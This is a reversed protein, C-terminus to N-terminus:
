SMGARINDYVSKPYSLMNLSTDLGGLNGAVTRVISESGNKDGSAEWYVAGGLGKAKIYKAKLKATAINEYTVLEKKTADYSYVSIAQTSVRTRTNPQPLDRYLYIGNEVTGGGVGSFPKGLGATNAFSRGYLPMGLVIKSPSIGKAIYDTVAQDTNFPTAKPVATSKYVNAQLGSLTDWSGAYDYAMLHWADVYPDMGALNMMNYHAPGASTAITILFRYNLKNATSYADLAARVEKLLLVYNNAEVSNAPYEWDIDIGDFGWDALLKVASSAFQKRTASTAAVPPFKPSYTWGGISLMTKFKRNKKKLLYLQKICGYANNGVDNWSDTSYHKDTDSWTDSSKVTGDSAIDLFSYLLHTVKDAPIQQPQYNAGYVGWNTFYLVNRRQLARSELPVSDAWDTDILDTTGESLTVDTSRPVVLGVSSDPSTPATALQQVVTAVSVATVTSTVYRVPHRHRPVALVSQALLPAVIFLLRLM